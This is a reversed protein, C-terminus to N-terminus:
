RMKELLGAGLASDRQRGSLRRYARWGKNNEGKGEGVGLVPTTKIRLSM